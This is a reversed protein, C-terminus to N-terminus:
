VQTANMMTNCTCAGSGHRATAHVEWSLHGLTGMFVTLYYHAGDRRRWRMRETCHVIFPLLFYALVERAPRQVSNRQTASACVGSLALGLNETTTVHCGHFLLLLNVFLYHNEM